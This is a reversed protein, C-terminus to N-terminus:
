AIYVSIRFNLKKDVNRRMRVAFRVMAETLGPLIESDARPLSAVAAAESGYVHLGPPASIPWHTEAPGDGGVLRLSRTVGGAREPLGGSRFCAALVDEAMARYTTWKGGTVTVLGHPSIEIAHERSIRKTTRGDGAPPKVLPRLGAWCNRM